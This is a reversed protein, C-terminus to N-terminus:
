SQPCLKILYKCKAVLRKEKDYRIQKRGERAGECCGFMLDYKGGLDTGVM